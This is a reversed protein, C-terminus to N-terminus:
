RNATEIEGTIQEIVQNAAEKVRSSIKIGATFAAGEIGYVLLRSPLTNIV